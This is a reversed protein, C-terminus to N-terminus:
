ATRCAVNFVAGIGNLLVILVQGYRVAYYGFSDRGQSALDFCICHPKPDSAVNPIPAMQLAENVVDIM